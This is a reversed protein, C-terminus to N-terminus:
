PAASVLIESVAGRKAADKNIRRTAQVTDISFGSFIRRTEPTDSNSLLFPVKRDILQACLGALREQDKPQFGGSQYGTFNATGSVPMYPPDFYVADGPGANFCLSEFDGECIAIGQLAESAARLAVENCITPNVYRGFPVNFKGAKNVRYLGNFGTRNLYVMRASRSLMDVPETARIRYYEVESYEMGRLRLILKEVDDRIVQYLWVLDTNTDGLLAREFRKEAALAFFVAAGGVFPEYYTRIKAPLRPLIEPLLQRKGGAWKLIPEAV